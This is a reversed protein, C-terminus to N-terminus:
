PSAPDGDNALLESSHRLARLVTDRAARVDWAAMLRRLHQEFEEADAQTYLLIFQRMPISSEPTTYREATREASEAYDGTFDSGAVPLAGVEALRDDVDDPTYGTGVLDGRLMMSELGRALLEPVLANAAALNGNAKALAAEYVRVPVDPLRDDATALAVARMRQLWRVTRGGRESLEVLTLKRGPPRLDNRAGQEPPVHEALWDALRWVQDRRAWDIADELDDYEALLQEKTADQNKDATM